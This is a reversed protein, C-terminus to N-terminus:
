VRAPADRDPPGSIPPGSVTGDKNRRIGRIAPVLLVSVPPVGALLAAGVLTTADGIRAALPGVIVLGAPLIVLSILWDYSDVRSRVEDPILQQMTATWVTNLFLMGASALAAAIAIKWTALPVALALLPCAGLALALNAAVLPRAPRLRLAILGGAAAGLAYGASITGWASAGGLMREAIVPGLVIYAATSLNWLTHAILNIWYWPRSALERWGTVLDARFSQREPLSRPPVRLVSLSAASVVFTAADIAFLPGPGFFAILLGAAAPGGVSFFSASFGMLANARQLQEGPVIEPLLGASAPGFFSQAAGYVAAGLGLEWVHARGTLLLVALAAQVAARLGDSVLMVVDRRLRDAWVGGALVFAIRAIAQAAATFGIDSATGGVRLIAFVFAIQVLADGASSVTQGTWLVRFARRALPALPGSKGHATDNSTGTVKTEKRVAAM